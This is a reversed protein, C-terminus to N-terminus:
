LNQAVVSLSTDLKLLVYILKDSFVLSDDRTSTFSFTADTM